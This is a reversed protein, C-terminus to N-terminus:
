RSVAVNLRHLDYLFNLGRPADDVSSSAMSYIAVAGEQGQFKDVTGVRAGTPLARRLEAIQANYPAVVIVKEIPLETTEGRSNTWETGVLNKYLSAVAEAEAESRTTDDDHVVPVFWLGADDDVSQRECEAESDLRADYAIESVFKCVAPHMRWTHDLFL